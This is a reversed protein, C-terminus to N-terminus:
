STVEAGSSVPIWRWRREPIPADTDGLEIRAIRDEGFTLALRALQWGLRADRVAQPVFLALQQGAAAVVGGLELEIRAVPAPPPV